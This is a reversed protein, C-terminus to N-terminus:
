GNALPSGPEIYLTGVDLRHLWTRVTNACFKPGDDSRIYSPPGHAVFLEGLLALVGDSKISRAVLMALCERSFEDLVTLM